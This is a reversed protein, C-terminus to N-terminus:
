KFIYFALFRFTIELLTWVRHSIHPWICETIHRSNGGTTFRVSQVCSLFYIYCVAHWSLLWVVLDSPNERTRRSLFVAPLSWPLLILASAGFTGLIVAADILTFHFNSVLVVIWLQGGPCVACSAVFINTLARSKKLRQMSDCRCAKHM